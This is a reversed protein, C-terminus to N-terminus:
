SLRQAVARWKSTAHLPPPQITVPQIMISRALTHDTMTKAHPKFPYLAARLGRRCASSMVFIIFSLMPM